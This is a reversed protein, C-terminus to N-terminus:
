GGTCSRLVNFVIIAVVILVPVFSPGNKKGAPKAPTGAAPKRRTATTAPVWGSPTLVYGNVKDGMRYTAQPAPTSSTAPAGGTRVAAPARGPNPQALNSGATTPRATASATQARPAAAGIAAQRSATVAADRAARAQARQAASANTRRATAGAAASAAVAARVARDPGDAARGAAPREGAPTIEDLPRWDGAPTLAYGDVVDGVRYPASTATRLPRWELDAGLMYGNVVHGPRYPSPDLQLAPVWGTATLVYGDLSDGIVYGAM